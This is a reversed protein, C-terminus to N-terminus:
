ESQPTTRIPKGEWIWEGHEQWLTRGDSGKVHPTENAPLSQQLREITARHEPLSALNHWENPDAQHDYLEQSGDAYRIYRWRDDRVAHNGPNHTTLAPRHPTSPDALQPRLSIGELNDPAQIQCLDALTPFIDLLETPQQCRQAKPLDPGAIIMPVHTSREWLTNKGSSEKEGLHWGNDSFLVIITDDARGSADLADLLRGIQSDVFSISALYARVLPMWQDNAKLWPLRPEPLNWKLFEAFPPVDDLDHAPVEPLKLTELPYLDFWKKSAYCPLHPRGFGIACFFPKSGTPQDKLFKTGWDAIEYDNQQEDREPFIGWDVLKYGSPNKALRQNPFPGFTCAPGYHDFEAARDAEPPYVHYIKGAIATTYGAKSFAQPLSVVPKLAPISRFWPALGYVGTTTPRLGTMLSTRSPNCLPAQCHTNAFLTGRAALRDLNPTRVQPNGGLCGVWDNLDDVAILLVNKGASAEVPTGIASILCIALCLARHFRLIKM